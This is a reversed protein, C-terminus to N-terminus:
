SSGDIWRCATDDGSQYAISGDKNKRGSLNICGQKGRVDEIVAMFECWYTGDYSDCTHPNSFTVKTGDDWEGENLEKTLSFGFEKHDALENYNGPLSFKGSDLVSCSSVIVGLLPTLIILRKMLKISNRDMTAFVHWEASGGIQHLKQM